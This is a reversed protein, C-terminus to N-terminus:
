YTNLWQSQVHSPHSHLGAENHDQSRGKIRCIEAFFFSVLLKGEMLVSRLSHLPYLTMFLFIFRSGGFTIGMYQLLIISERYNLFM